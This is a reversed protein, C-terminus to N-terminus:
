IFPDSLPFQQAVFLRPSICRRRRTAALILIIKGGHVFKLKKEAEIKETRKKQPAIWTFYIENEENTIKIMAFTSPTIM